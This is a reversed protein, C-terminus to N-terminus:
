CPSCHRSNRAYTKDGIKVYGALRTNWLYEVMLIQRYDVRLNTLHVIMQFRVRHQVQGQESLVFMVVDEESRDCEELMGQM